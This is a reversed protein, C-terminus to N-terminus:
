ESKDLDVNGDIFKCSFRFTTIRWRGDLRSLNFDYSGVFTRINHGSATPRYHTATGYCFAEAENGQVTVRYNGAQHHLAHIPRLGEEWTAALEAGSTRGAEGGTLLADHM